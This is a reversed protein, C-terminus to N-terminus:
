PKVIVRRGEVSFHVKGTLELARLADSLRTNRPIEAYFKDEIKAEDVIEIDYWRSLQRTVTQIDEGDFRFYGNKWSIVKDVNVGSIVKVDGSTTLQSQQAPKLYKIKDGKVFKVEGELLTTELASEEKYAMVNFRTGLVQVEAGNVSVIFPM